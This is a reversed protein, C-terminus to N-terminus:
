LYYNNIYLYYYFIKQNCVVVVKGDMPQITKIWNKLNQLKNYLDIYNINKNTCILHRGGKLKNFMNIKTENEYLEIKGSNYLLLSINWEDNDVDKLTDQYKIKQNYNEIINPNDNLFKYIHNASLQYQNSNQIPSQNFSYNSNLNQNQIPSQNFSQNQTPSYNFSQNSNLYKECVLNYLIMCEFLKDIHKIILECINLCNENKLLENMINKFKIENICPNLYVIYGEDIIPIIFKNNYFSLKPILHNYCYLRDKSMYVYNNLELYNM